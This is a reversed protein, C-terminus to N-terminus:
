SKDEGDKTSVPPVAAKEYEEGDKSVITAYKALEGGGDEKNTEDKKVESRAGGANNMADDLDMEGKEGMGGESLGGGEMVVRLELAEDKSYVRFGVVCVANWPEARADENDTEDVDVLVPNPLGAAQAAATQERLQVKPNATDDDSSDFLDDWDSVPSDSSDDESYPDRQNQAQQQQQHEQQERQQQELKKQEEQAALLQKQAEAQQEKHYQCVIPLTNTAKSDTSEPEPPPGGTVPPVPVKESSGNDTDPGPTVTDSKESQPTDMPTDQPSSDSSTISEADQKCESSSSPDTPADIHTPKTDVAQKDAENNPEDANTPTEVVVDEDTANPEDAPTEATEAAPKETQSKDADDTKVDEAKKEEVKPEAALKAAEEEAKKKEAAERREKKRRERKALNKDRQKKHVVTQLRRREWNAKREKKREEDAKSHDCARRQRAVEALHAAAKSHALDYARGVQALKENEVRARCERAVVEEVSSSGNLREGSVCIWISYNGAAMDPLEVGVSREMLYNAHSRVIYDEADPRGQEHVRFHLDFVYQGRLGKFYRDDLQSLVLVLPSDRTLKVHFKEHYQARWPVDVGIWRQSVRWDPDSFLRTRDVHQFKRLLDDYTIWFVSDSGFSHGLEEQVQRNWEKSGDSYAGEWIGRGKAGWPNRLKVLRTGDKLTRTEVVNYAHREQIGDRTGTGGDLLGTSCGFLFEKNSNNLENDWFVDTDLIDSTLLETTVGSSLDELGEGIWGGALSAYDGHAKAYAKELLPVWTENQDKNQGFFLAKSGTQYTKRYVMEAEEREIQQLLDRQMSRNDWNPSKLFLKDDIISYIWEGDRYFVFGYIGIRTNYEVCTRQIAGEVNALGSMSAMLWCDGLGGQKVDSGNVNKMFTPNDFIEHVRKVAKPVTSSPDQLTSTNLAFKTKGLYNLTNGKEWKLDWDLDFGPDRYRQNVRKCEQIIKRVKRRCEDAAREYGAWLLENARESSTSAPVPEFPLISLAKTFTKKSFREWIKDISHQPPLKIKKKKKDDANNGGAGLSPKEKRARGSSQLSVVSSTAGPSPTLRQGEDESDSDYGKGRPAFM